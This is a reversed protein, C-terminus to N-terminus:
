LNVRNKLVRCFSFLDCTYVLVLNYIELVGGKSSMEMFIDFISFIFRSKFRVLDLILFLIFGVVFTFVFDLVVM